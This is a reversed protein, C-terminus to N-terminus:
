DKWIDFSKLFSQIILFIEDDDFHGKISLLEVMWEKHKISLSVLIENAFEIFNDYNESDTHLDVNFNVPISCLNKITQKAIKDNQISYYLEYINRNEIYADALNVFFGESCLAARQLIQIKEDDHVQNWFNRVKLKDIIM